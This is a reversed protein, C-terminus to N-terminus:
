VHRACYESGWGLAASWDECLVSTNKSRFVSASKRQRQCNLGVVRDKDMIKGLGLLAESRSLHDRGGVFLESHQNRHTM